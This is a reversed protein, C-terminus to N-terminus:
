TTLQRKGVKKIFSYTMQLNYKIAKHESEKDQRGSKTSFLNDDCFVM